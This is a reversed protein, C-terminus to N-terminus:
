NQCPAGSNRFIGTCLSVGKVFAYKSLAPFGAMWNRCAKADEIQQNFVAVSILVHLTKFEEKSTMSALEHFDHATIRSLNIGPIRPDRTASLIM